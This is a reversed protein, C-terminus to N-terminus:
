TNFREGRSAEVAKIEKDYGAQKFDKYSSLSINELFSGNNDIVNVVPFYLEGTEHDIQIMEYFSFNPSKDLILLPKGTDEVLQTARDYDFSNLPGGKVEVFCGFDPLYFDPLYLSGDSLILGEPEYLFEVDLNDFYVAWRAEQRSRFKYGKYYTQIAKIKNRKKTTNM